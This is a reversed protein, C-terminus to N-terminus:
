AAQEDAEFCEGAVAEGGGPLTLIQPAVITLHRPPQVTESDHDIAAEDKTEVAIVPINKSAGHIPGDLGSNGGGSKVDQRRVGARGEERFHNSLVPDFCAIPIAVVRTM